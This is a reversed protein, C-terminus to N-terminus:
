RHSPPKHIFRASRRLSSASQRLILGGIALVALVAIAVLYLLPRVGILSVVAGGITAGLMQGAEPVAAASAMGRALQDSRLGQIILTFLTSILLTGWPKRDCGEAAVM